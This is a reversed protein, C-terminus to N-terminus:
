EEIIYVMDYDTSKKNLQYIEAKHLEESVDEVLKNVENAAEIENIKILEGYM